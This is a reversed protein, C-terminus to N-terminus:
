AVCAAPLPEQELAAPLPEQELQPQAKAPKELELVAATMWAAAKLLRFEEDTVDHGRDFVVQLTTRARDDGPVDFYLTERGGVAGASGARVQVDRAAVLRRLGHAFTAHAPEGGSGLNALADGLLAALDQPPTAPAQRRRPGELDIEKAFAAAAHYRVGLGDIRAVDSRIFRVPVVLNTGPGSLHLESTSGPAFKSGTEVLVGTSSINVLQLEPGWPLKVGSLWPVDGRARRLAIRREEHAAERLQQAIAEDSAALRHRGAGRMFRARAREAAADHYALMAAYEMRQERARELADAIQAAVMSRDYQLGLSTPRRSFVAGFFGRRGHESPADGLMDLAPLTVMQVYPADQLQKMHARLEGEESPPLLTPAVILDPTQRAISEIAASVSAVVVLDAKVHERVLASLVDRRKPDAEIALIRPM